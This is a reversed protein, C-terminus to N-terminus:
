NTLTLCFPRSALSTPQVHFRPFPPFADPPSYLSLWSRGNQPSTLRRPQALLMSIKLGLFGSKVPKAARRATPMQIAHRGVARFARGNSESRWTFATSTRHIQRAASEEQSIHINPRQGSFLWATALRSTVVRKVADHGLMCSVTLGSVKKIVKSIRCSNNPPVRQKFM